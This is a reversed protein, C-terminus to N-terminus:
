GQVSIWVCASLSKCGQNQEPARQGATAECVHVHMAAELRVMLEGAGKDGVLQIHQTMKLTM